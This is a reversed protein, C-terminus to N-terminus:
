QRPLTTSHREHLSTATISTKDLFRLFRGYQSEIWHSNQKKTQMNRDRKFNAPVRLGKKRPVGVGVTSSIITHCVSQISAIVRYKTSPNRQFKCYLSMMSKTYLRRRPFTANNANTASIPVVHRRCLTFAGSVCQRWRAVTVMTVSDTTYVICSDQM